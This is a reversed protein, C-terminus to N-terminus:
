ALRSADRAPPTEFSGEGVVTRDADRVIRYRYRTLPDLPRHQNTQPYTVAATKDELGDQVVVKVSRAGGSGGLIQVDHSGAIDSRMWLRVWRPGTIGVSVMNSMRHSALQAAQLLKNTYLANRALETAAVPGIALKTTLYNGLASHDQFYAKAVMTEGAVGVLDTACALQKPEDGSTVVPQLRQEGLLVNAFYLAVGDDVDGGFFNRFGPSSLNQMALRVAQGLNARPRLHITGTARDYFGRTKRLENTLAPGFPAVIKKQKQLAFDVQWFLPGHVSNRAANGIVQDSTARLDALVEDIGRLHTRRCRRTQCFDLRLQGCQWAFELLHTRSTGLFEFCLPGPDTRCGLGLAIAEDFLRSALDGRLGAIGACLQARM